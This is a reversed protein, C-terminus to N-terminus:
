VHIANAIVGIWESKSIRPFLVRFRLRDFKQRTWRGLSLNMLCRQNNSTTGYSRLFRVCASPPPANTERNAVVPSNM